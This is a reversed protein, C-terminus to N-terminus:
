QDVGRRVNNYKSAQYNIHNPLNDLRGEFSRYVTNVLSRPHEGKHDASLEWFMAGALRREKVYRCKAEIIQPTDYTIIEQTQPDHSWSAVRQMDHHEM